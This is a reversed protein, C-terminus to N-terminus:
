GPEPNKRWRTETSHIFNSEGDGYFSVEGVLWEILEDLGQAM